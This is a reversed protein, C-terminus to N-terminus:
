GGRLTRSMAVKSAGLWKESDQANQVRPLLSLCRNLMGSVEPEFQKQNWDNDMRACATKLAEALYSTTMEEDDDSTISDWVDEFNPEVYGKHELIWEVAESDSLDKSMSILKVPTYYISCAFCYASNSQPYIRFSRADNHYIGTFPCSMKPSGYEFEGVYIGSSLTYAEFISMLKNAIERKESFKMDAM